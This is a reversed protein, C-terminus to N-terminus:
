FLQPKISEICLMGKLNQVSYLCLYWTFFNIDAENRVVSNYAMSCHSLAAHQHAPTSSSSSMLPSTTKEPFAGKSLDGMWVSEPDTLSSM